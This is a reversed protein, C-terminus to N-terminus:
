GAAASRIASLADPTDVDRLVAGDAVEVEVVVEEHEGILPKAGVDGKLEAMEPLFRRDWLVPNGRKGRWTPVCIARGELPNFAAILRDVHASTVDPMDGLLVVVADADEPAARAAARLSASLGAAYDPNHAFSVDYGALAAQVREAEHGTVVVIADVAAGAAAEVAWASMPKGRVQELLKNQAGMRRSQGAALVVAAVKPGTPVAPRRRTAEARPLPRAGIEALLGGVGMAQIDAPGVDLGAAIRQLAWDFGNLKPSRACGPLGIVPKGDRAGLMILNGPDVPMGFHLVEGGAAEIGAPLADARDVIASAGAILMVDPAEDDFAAVAKAISAADHPARREGVLSGGLGELRARTVEVTKDLVSPKVSDLTSQVLAARIPRYAHLALPSSAAEEACAVAARVASEPAAFPIIKITAAMQREALSAFPPATAVTVSEHIANIRHIREADVTLLGPAEAILNVRGTFAASARLGPGRVAEALRRAAEDEHVDGPELRAVIAEEVGAAALRAIDDESLLRGKRLAGDPLRISHALYAGAADRVPTAGFKM